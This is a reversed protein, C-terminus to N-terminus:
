YGLPTIRNAEQKKFYQRLYHGADAGPSINETKEMIGNAMCEAFLSSCGVDKYVDPGQM